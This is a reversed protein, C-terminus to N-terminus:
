TVTVGEKMEVDLFLDLGVYKVGARELIALTPQAGRLIAQNVTQTLTYNALLATELANMYATAIDAGREQDADLVFMQTHIAYRRVLLGVHVEFATLSWENAFCPTEPLTAEEPPFYKWAKAISSTIPSTISLSEQLTVLADLAARITLNM